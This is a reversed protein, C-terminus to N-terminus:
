SLSISLARVIFCSFVSFMFCPTHFFLHIEVLFPCYLLHFFISNIGYLWFFAFKFLPLSFAHYSISALCYTLIFSTRRFRMKLTTWHATYHFLMFMWTSLPIVPLPFFLLLTSPVYILHLFILFTLSLSYFSRYTPHVYLLFKLSLCFMYPYRTTCLYNSLSFPFVNCWVVVFCLCFCHIYPYSAHLSVVLCCRAPGAIFVVM